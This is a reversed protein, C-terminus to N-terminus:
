QRGGSQPEILGTPSTGHRWASYLITSGVTRCLVLKDGTRVPRATILNNPLGTGWLGEFLSARQPGSPSALAEKPVWPDALKSKQSCQSPCLPHLLRVWHLCLSLLPPTCPSCSILSDRQSLPIRRPGFAERRVAPRPRGRPKTM